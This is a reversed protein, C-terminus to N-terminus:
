LICMEQTRLTAVSLCIKALTVRYGGLKETRMNEREERHLVGCLGCSVVVPATDQTSIECLQM